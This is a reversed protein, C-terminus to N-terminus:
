FSFSFHNKKKRCLFSEFTNSVQWRLLCKYTHLLQVIIEQLVSTINSFIFIFTYIYIFLISNCIFVHKKKRRKKGNYHVQLQISTILHKETVM